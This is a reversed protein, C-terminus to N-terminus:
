LKVMQLDLDLQLQIVKLMILHLLLLVAQVKAQKQTVFGHLKTDKRSLYCLTTMPYALAKPEDYLEQCQIVM